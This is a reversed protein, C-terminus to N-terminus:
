VAMEEPFLYGFVDSGGIQYATTLGVASAGMELYQDVHERISVGGLGIVAVNAPLMARFQRVQGLAIPRLIEGGMQGFSDSGVVSSGDPELFLTKPYPGCCVVATVRSGGESDIATVMGELVTPQMPSFKLWLDGSKGHFRAAAARLLDSVASPDDSFAYKVLRPSLLCPWAFNMEVVDAGAAFAREALNLYDDADNGAVNVVFPKGADRAANALAGLHSEWAEMGANPFGYGTVSRAGDCWLVDGDDVGYPETTISGVVLVASPSALIRCAGEPHKACGAALFLPTKLMVNGIQIM